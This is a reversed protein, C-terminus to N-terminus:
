DDSTHCRMREAASRGGRRGVRVRLQERGVALEGQLREQQLEVNQVGAVALDTRENRTSPQKSKNTARRCWNPSTPEAVSGFPRQAFRVVAQERGSTGSSDRRWNVVAIVREVGRATPETRSGARRRLWRKGVVVVAVRGEAAGM